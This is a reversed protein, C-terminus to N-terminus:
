GHVDGIVTAVFRHDVGHVSGSIDTWEVRSLPSILCIEKDVAAFFQHSFFIEEFNFIQDFSTCM